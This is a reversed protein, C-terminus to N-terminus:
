KSDQVIVTSFVTVGLKCLNLQLDRCGFYVECLIKWNYSITKCNNFYKANRFLQLSLTGYKKATAKAATWTLM